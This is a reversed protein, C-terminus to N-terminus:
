CECVACCACSVFVCYLMSLGSCWSLVVFSVVFVVCLMVVCCWEVCVVGGHLVVVDLLM